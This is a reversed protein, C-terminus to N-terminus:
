NTTVYVRVFYFTGITLGTITQRTSASQCGLSTLSGCAGSLVELYTNAASLSSGLSSLTITHTTAVAQFRYWVDYTTTATAGGCAGSPGSSTAYQLNGSSTNCSFGSTIATATACNDNAAPPPLHTICIDFKGKSTVAAGVNSVRVYYTTGTILGTATTTTTGCSLQTLAGCSGSFIAVEPNTFNQERNSITATHTPGAATFSFWVDYHTGSVCPVGPVGASATANRVSSGSNNCSINSTLNTAGTCNDNSPQAFSYSHLTLFLISAIITKCVKKM